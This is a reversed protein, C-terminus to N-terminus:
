NKGKRRLGCFKELTFVETWQAGCTVCEIERRVEAGQDDFGHGELVESGCEPCSQGQVDLYRQQREERM